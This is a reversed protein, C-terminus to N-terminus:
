KRDRLFRKIMLYILLLSLVNLCFLPFISLPLAQQALIFGGAHWNGTIYASNTLHSMLALSLVIFSYALFYEKTRKYRDKIFVFKNLVLFIIFTYLVAICASIIIAAIAEAETPLTDRVGYLDPFVFVVPLSALGGIMLMIFVILSGVVQKIRTIYAMNSLNNSNYRDCSFKKKCRKKQNAYIM